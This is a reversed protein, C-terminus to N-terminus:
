QAEFVLVTDGIKIKDGSALRHQGIVKQGNLFTGNASSLDLLFWVGNGFILRAHERSIKADGIVIDCKTDRGVLTDQALLDYACGVNIGSLVTLTDGTKPVDIITASQPTRDIITPAAARHATANVAANSLSSSVVAAGTAANRTAADVKSELSSMRNGFMQVLETEPKARHVGSEYIVLALASLVVGVLAIVAITQGWGAVLWNVNWNIPGPYYPTLPEAALRVLTTVGDATGTFRFIFAPIIAFFGLLALIRPALAQQDRKKSISDYFIWILVGLTALLFIFLGWEFLWSYGQLNAISNEIWQADYNIEIFSVGNM